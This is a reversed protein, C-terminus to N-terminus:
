REHEVVQAPTVVGVFDAACHELACVGRRISHCAGLEIQQSALPIDDLIKMMASSNM